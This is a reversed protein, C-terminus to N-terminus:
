LRKLDVQAKGREHIHMLWAMDRVLLPLDRALLVCEQERLRVFLDKRVDPEHVAKAGASFGGYTGLKTGESRARREHERQDAGLCAHLEDGVGVHM